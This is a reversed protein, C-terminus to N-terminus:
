FGTNETSVTGWLCGADYIFACFGNGHNKYAMIYFTKNKMSTFLHLAENDANKVRLKNAVM